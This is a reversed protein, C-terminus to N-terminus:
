SILIGPLQCKELLWRRDDDGLMQSIKDWVEQHYEGLWAKESESMQGWDILSTDFPILTLPDLRLWRKGDPHDPLTVDAAVLYLNELRM